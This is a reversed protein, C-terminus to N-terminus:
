FVNSLAVTIVAVILVLLWLNLLRGAFAPADQWESVEGAVAYEKGVTLEVPPAPLSIPATAGSM